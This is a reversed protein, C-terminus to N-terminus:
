GRYGRSGRERCTRRHVNRSQFGGEFVLSEGKVSSQHQNALDDPGRDTIKYSEQKLSWIFGLKCQAVNQLPNPTHRLARSPTRSNNPPRVPPYAVWPLRVCGATLSPGRIRSSAAGKGEIRLPSGGKWVYFFLGLEMAILSVYLPAVNPHQQSLREPQSRAERQFLAGGLTLALFLAVFLVTHWRPAVLNASSPKFGPVVAITAMSREKVQRMTVSRIPLIETQTQSNQKDYYTDMFLGLTVDVNSPFEAAHSLSLRVAKSAVRFSRRQESATLRFGRRAAPRSKRRM